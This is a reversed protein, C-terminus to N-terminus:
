RYQQLTNGDTGKSWRMRTARVACMASAPVRMVVESYANDICADSNVTPMRMANNERNGMNHATGAPRSISRMPMMRGIIAPLMAIAAPHKNGPRTPPMGTSKRAVISIPVPKM